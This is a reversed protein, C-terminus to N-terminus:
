FPRTIAAAGYGVVSATDGSTAASTNYKLLTVDTAGLPASAWLAAAIPALGCAQGQGLDKLDFLGEPSFAELMNLVHADLKEAQSQAYFHSLDSSAVLLCATSEFVEALVEALAKTVQRSQDRFMIPILTFEGSLAVQLFPLEIELSHEYDNSIPTLGLGIKEILRANIQDIMDDALPIEGLPTWYARHASTLLSQPYYQHMPALLCVYDFSRGQVTKFAHGAVTGSYVYGAHPAVLGVVQGPLPPNVAADLFASVSNRLQIANGPYWTGAIPSPRVTRKETMM